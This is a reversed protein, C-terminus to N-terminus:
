NTRRKLKFNPDANHEIVERICKTSTPAKTDDGVWNLMVWGWPKKAPKGSYNLWITNLDQAINYPYYGYLGCGGLYTISFNRHEDSTYNNAYAKLVNTANDKVGTRYTASSGSVSYIVNACESYILNMGTSSLASPYASGANTAPLSGYPMPSYFPYSEAAYRYINTWVNAGALSPWAGSYSSESGNLQVKIIVKGKVDDITTNPTIGTAVLGVTGDKKLLNNLRKYLTSLKNVNLDKIWESIALVCFEDKHIGSMEKHLAEIADELTWCSTGDAKKIPNGESTALGIPGNENTLSPDDGLNIHSQFVRVGKNFQETLNLTQTKKTADSALYNFSLATGPMSIESIYINPDLQSLWITYDFQLDDVDIKPLKPFHIQSNKFNDMKLTKTMTQAAATVVKVKLQTIAPNPILFARVNLTSNQGMTVGIENGDKDKFKTNIAISNSTNQGLTLAGSEYDYTFDGAIPADAEIIVSTIRVTTQTNSGTTGNVTVDLMTAFPEFQLGVKAQNDTSPTYGKEKAIMLACNMDANTQLNTVPTTLSMTETTSAIQTIPMFASLSTSTGSGETVAQAPYMGYFNYSPANSLQIGIDSDKTAPAEHQDKTGHVTYSAQNRGNMAQPSYIYVHDLPAQYNWFIKWSTANPNAVDTPDYYTRSQNTEVAAGFEFETGQPLPKGGEVDDNSCGIFSLAMFSLALTSFLIGKTM